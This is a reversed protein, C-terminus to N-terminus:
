KTRLLLPSIAAAGAMGWVVDRVSPTGKGTRDRLEKAVSIGFTVAGAGELSGHKGLGAVQLGSFAASQVFAGLFFHKAKDAGLWSDQGLSVAHFSFVLLAVRRM